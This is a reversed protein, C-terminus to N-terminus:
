LIVCNARPAGWLPVWGTKFSLSGQGLVEILEPLAWLLNCTTKLCCYSTSIGGQSQHPRHGLTRMHLSLGCLYLARLASLLISLSNLPSEPVDGMGWNFTRPFWGCNWGGSGSWGCRRRERMVEWRTQWLVMAPFEGVESCPLLGGSSKGWRCLSSDYGSHLGWPTKRYEEKQFISLYEQLYDLFCDFGLCNEQLLPLLFPLPFLYADPHLPLDRLLTSQLSLLFLTNIWLWLFDLRRLCYCLAECCGVERREGRGEVGM